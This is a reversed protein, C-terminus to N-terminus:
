DELDDLDEGDDPDVIHMAAEEASAAGGDIGVDGAVMDDRIRDFGGDDDAHVLRGARRGGPGAIWDDAGDIQDGVPGTRDDTGIDPLEAALYDDLHEGQRQEEATPIHVRPERDPPSYGEDLPDSVGRDDLTDAPDLQTTVGDDANWDGSTSM